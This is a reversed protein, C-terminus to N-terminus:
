KKLVAVQTSVWKWEGNSKVLIDTWFEDHSFENGNPNIGKNTSRGIVVATEGYIRVDIEYV